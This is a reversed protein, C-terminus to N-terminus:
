RNELSCCVVYHMVILVRFLFDCQKKTKTRWDEELAFGGYPGWNREKSPMKYNITLDANIQSLMYEYKNKLFDVQHMVGCRAFLELLDFNIYDEEMLGLNYIGSHFFAQAPSIFREKIYTYVHTERDHPLSFLKNLSNALLSQNKANRWGRSHALNRLDYSCPWQTGQKFFLKRKSYDIVDDLDAHNLVNTFTNFSFDIDYSLNIFENKPLLYEYGARIIVSSRMLYMGLATYAYDSEPAKPPPKINPHYAPEELLFSKVAKYIYENEPPFGKEALFRLGVEMNDYMGAGESVSQGHFYNGIWGDPKQAQLITQINKQSIIKEILDNEESPSLNNLIERKIRLVISPDANELLYDIIKEKM